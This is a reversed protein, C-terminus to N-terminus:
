GPAKERLQVTSIDGKEWSTATWMSYWPRIYAWTSNWTVRENLKPRRNKSLISLFHIFWNTLSTTWCKTYLFSSVLTRIICKWSAKPSNIPNKKKEGWECRLFEECQNVLWHFKFDLIQGVRLFPSPILFCLEPTMQKMVPGWNGWRYLHSTSSTIELIEGM